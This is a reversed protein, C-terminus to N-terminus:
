VRNPGGIETVDGYDTRMREMREDLRDDGMFLVIDPRRVIHLSDLYAGLHDNAHATGWPIVELGWQGLYFLPPLPPSTGKTDDLAYHHHAKRVSRPAGGRPQAQQLHHETRAIAAPQHVMRIGVWRAVPRDTRVVVPFRQAVAGM